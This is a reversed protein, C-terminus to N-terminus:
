FFEKQLGSEIIARVPAYSKRHIKTIGVSKIAERHFKTPYGKNKELQYDKYEKSLEVLIRDRTVKALISAAGVAASKLDAKIIPYIIKNEKILKVSDIIAISYYKELKNLCEMMGKKTANLINIEDIVEVPIISIHYKYSSNNTIEKFLKNRKKESLKKSDNIGIIPNSYDAVVGAIVVPGALAGRGAEDIGIIDTEFEGTKLDFLYNEPYNEDIKAKDFIM